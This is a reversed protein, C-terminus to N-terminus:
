LQSRTFNCRCRGRSKVRPSEERCGHCREELVEFKGDGRVEVDVEPISGHHLGDCRRYSFSTYVSDKYHDPLGRSSIYSDLLVLVRWGFRTGGMVVTSAAKDYLDRRWAISGSM